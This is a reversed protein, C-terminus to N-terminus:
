FDKVAAKKRKSEKKIGQVLGITIYTCLLVVLAFLIGTSIGTYMGSHQPFRGALQKLLISVFVGIVTLGFAYKIAIGKVYRTATTGIQAGVAAGALMILAALMETRGKLTYTFAGYLAAFMVGYLSTGVAVHTPCGILYIFAPLVILGGGIGLTGSILGIFLSILVPLWLSCRVGATKFHIMPPVNIRHLTKYWDIGVATEETAGVKFQKKQKAIDAFVTWSIFSLLIMYCYRLVSGVLGIHELYMVIRSGLEVGALSGVIMITGLKYDVNGFKSHRMTSIISTASMQTLDTGIAFSMPFGLINLGPTVLWGGGVGFFGGIVGVGFGLIVLGPASILAGSIPMHLPLWNM